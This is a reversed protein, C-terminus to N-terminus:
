LGLNIVVYDGFLLYGKDEAWAIVDGDYDEDIEDYNDACDDTHCIEGNILINDVIYKPDNYNPKLWGIESLYNVSPVCNNSKLYYIINFITIIIHTFSTM